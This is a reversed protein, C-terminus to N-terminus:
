HPVHVRDDITTEVIRSFIADVILSLRAGLAREAESGSARTTFLASFCRGVTAGFAMAFGEVEGGMSRVGVHVETTYGRPADIRRDLVATEEVIPPLMPLWLRVQAQCDAPTIRRAARWTRVRLESRSAAHTAIFWPGRADDIAWRARAPLPVRLAFRQSEVWGWGADPLGSEPPPREAHTVTERRSTPETRESRSTACAAVLVIPFLARGPSFDV